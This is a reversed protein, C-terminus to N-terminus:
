LEKPVDGLSSSRCSCLKPTNIFHGFLLMIRGENMDYCISVVESGLSIQGRPREFQSHTLKGLQAKDRLTM